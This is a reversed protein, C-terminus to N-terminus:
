DMWMVRPKWKLARYNRYVDLLFVSHRVQAKTGENNTVKVVKALTAPMPYTNDSDPTSLIVFFNKVFKMPTRDNKNSLLAKRQALKQKKTYKAHTVPEVASRHPPDIPCRAAAGETVSAVNKQLEYMM